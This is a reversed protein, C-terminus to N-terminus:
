PLRMEPLTATAANRESGLENTTDNERATDDTDKRTHLIRPATQAAEPKEHRLAPERALANRGTIPVSDASNAIASASLWRVNDSSQKFM